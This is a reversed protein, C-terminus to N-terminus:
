LSVPTLATREVKYFRVGYLFVVVYCIIPLYYAHAVSTNAVPGMVFRPFLAAGVVGMVIFSSALQKHRGLNKLGLSYITPFMISFFFNLGILAGFSVWGAHQAVVVCLGMNALAAVALLKNPAIFRMLYTGLFRGVMMCVLSLSFFYAAVEGALHPLGPVLAVTRTLLTGVQWFGQIPEGPRLGMYDTGYNIFYAWTGGQAATNFLQAVCAWVFHKHQFLTKDAEPAHPTAGAAAVPEPTHEANLPPVKVFAFLIGISGVVTGIITYLTKVASLDGAAHTGRLVFYGGILPGSVAGIGNIAHSFTIRQDSSAPDGLGDLFPHAVAELTGLGCALVFLAVLLFTFSAANAAPIMLFAGAAYLGLGLLVGKQYGFRKMFWGAPLGMVFYAGFTAAQVYASNAKSVHLVQQVHKNLVDAMTVGLGWLMFLSVVFIFTLVYRRETFAPVAVAPPSTTTQM